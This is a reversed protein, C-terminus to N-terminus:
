DKHERENVKRYMKTVETVQMSTGLLNKYLNTIKDNESSNTVIKEEINKEPEFEKMDKFTVNGDIIGQAVLLLTHDVELPTTPEKVYETGIAESYFHAFEKETFDQLVKHYLMLKYQLTTTKDKKNELIQKKINELEQIYNM